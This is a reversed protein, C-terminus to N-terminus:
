GSVQPTLSSSMPERKPSPVVAMPVGAVIPVGAVFGSVPLRIRADEGIGGSSM